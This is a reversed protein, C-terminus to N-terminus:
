KTSVQECIFSEVSVKLDGETTVEIVKKIRKQFSDLTSLSNGFDLNQKLGLGTGVVRDCTKETVTM